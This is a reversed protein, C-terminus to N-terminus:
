PIKYALFYLPKPNTNINVQVELFAGQQGWPRERAQWLAVIPM